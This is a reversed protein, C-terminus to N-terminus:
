SAPLRAEVEVEFTRPWPLQIFLDPEDGTWRARQYLDNAWVNLKKTIYGEVKNKNNNLNLPDIHQVILKKEMRNRLVRQYGWDDILREWLFLNQRRHQIDGPHTNMAALWASLHSITTGLTNGATNWGAYAALQMILGRDRLMNMLKPDSGNPYCVDALALVKGSKLLRAIEEVALLTQGEKCPTHIWLIADDYGDEVWKCGAAVLHNEVTQYLPRDEFPVAKQASEPSTFIPRIRPPRQRNIWCALLTQTGEDAGPYIHVRNRVNLSQALDYLQRHELLHPGYTSADEQLLILSDLTGNALMEIMYRNIEHNRRRAGLYGDLVESPIAKKIAEFEKRLHKNEQVEVLWVLESYRILNNYHQTAQSSSNTISIRMIVSAALIKVRPNKRKIKNLIDLNHIANDIDVSPSRSAILGGYALMDAAVLMGDVKKAQEALWQGLRQTDGPQLFKGLLDRPPVTMDINAIAAIRQPFLYTPPRDDLPLLALSNSTSEM